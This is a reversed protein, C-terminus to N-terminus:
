KKNRRKREPEAVIVVKGPGTEELKDLLEDLPDRHLERGRHIPFLEHCGGYRSCYFRLRERWNEATVEDGTVETTWPLQEHIFPLVDSSARPLQHTFLNDSLLYNLLEYVGGIECLLKGTTVSLIQGTSFLRGSPSATKSGSSVADVGSISQRVSFQRVSQRVSDQGSNQVCGHEPAFLPHIASCVNTSKSPNKTPAAPSSGAVRLKSSGAEKFKREATEIM